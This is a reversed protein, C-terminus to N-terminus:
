RYAEGAERARGQITAIWARMQAVRGSEELCLNGSERHPSELNFLGVAPLLRPNRENALQLKWKLGRASQVVNAEFDEESFVQELQPDVLEDGRLLPAGQMAKSPKLGFLECVTPAIDLHRVQYSARSGALRNAPLKIILPIHIMEEYLTRGHWWGGHDYFEEGHDGTLIIAMDDYLGQRKLSDMLRGIQGDLYEIEGLYAAHLKDRDERALNEWTLRAFGRRQSLPHIMYPDHPDMFHIFYFFPVKKVREIWEAAQDVVEEAPWYFEKVNVFDPPQFRQRIKDRVRRLIEYIALQSSSDSAWFCLQPKLYVYHSFGRGFGNFPAINYHNALGGAFIGAQTLTEALTPVSPKLKDSKRVAGHTSPYLGTLITAFSSRTWSAQAVAQEFLIGDAALASIAPTQIEQYGYCNLRDARLTDIGILLVSPKGALEPPAPPPVPPGTEPAWKLAGIGLCAALVGAFLGLGGSLRPIARFGRVRALANLAYLLIVFSLAVLLLLHLEDSVSPKQEGLFDRILRHRFFVFGMAAFASAASFAFVRRPVWFRDRWLAFFVAVAGLGAGAGIGVLGHAVWGYALAWAETLREAVAVVYIGELLGTLGAGIMGGMAAAVVTQWLGQRYHRVNEESLRPQAGLQGQELRSLDIRPQYHAPRLMLILGGVLPLPDAWFGLHSFLFTKAGGVQRGLLMVMVLERLGEGGISPGIVVASIMLPAAFLIHAVRVGETRIAMATCFYMLATTLHVLFGLLVAWLLLPRQGSYATVAQALRAFKGEIKPWRSVPFVAILVQLIRPNLLCAFSVAIFAGLVALTAGLLPIKFRLFTLGFPLTVFVLFALAIFGILKEVAIVTTSEIWKGTHRGVFYLRYFDLGVTGPLFMGAFRGVLYAGVLHWFNMSMGQGILLLRWRLMSSLIGCAKIGVALAFWPLFSGLRVEQIATWVERFSVKIFPKQIGFLDPRFILGFLALTFGLKILWQIASKLRSKRRPGEPSHSM